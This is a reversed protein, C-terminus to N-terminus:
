KKAAGLADTHRCTHVFLQKGEPTMQGPPGTFGWLVHRPGQQVLVYHTANNAERGLLVVDEPPTPLYVGVHGSAKYVALVQSEPLKIKSSTWFKSTEADCAFLDTQRGHWVHPLGLATGLGAFFAAGGEGLGLTPKKAEDVAAAAKAWAGRTDPGVVVLTYPKWDATGLDSVPILATPLKAEDLLKKFAEAADKDKDYLFAVKSKPPPEPPAPAAGLLPAACLAVLLPWALRPLRPRM